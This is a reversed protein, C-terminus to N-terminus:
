EKVEEILTIVGNVCAWKRPSVLVNALIRMGNYEANAYGNERSNQYFDYAYQLQRMITKETDTMENTKIKKIVM